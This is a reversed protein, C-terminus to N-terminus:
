EEKLPCHEYQEDWTKYYTPLLDCDDYENCVPCDACHEPKKDLREIYIRGMQKRRGTVATIM